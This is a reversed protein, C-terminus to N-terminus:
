KREPLPNPPGPRTALEAPVVLRLARPLVEIRARSTAPFEEGDIQAALPVADSRNHFAIEIRGAQLGESHRIGVQALADATRGTGDLHVLAKSIWDRKGLFPVVEFRGDDPRSDRDLVWLGGYIRTGKVVLDTLGTWRRPTPDADVSITADFKDDELYSALFTKLLAGAYVWQDRYVERLVPVRDIERRDENRLALIRPGIGWGASDFFHDERVTANREIARIRGADLDAERGEAIVGVNRDIESPDSSLGFSRGQDNATGTPLMALPVERARGSRILAKGVEAFTGDGGMAIVAGIGGERLRGSLERVTGGAPTTALLEHVIGRSALRARVHSIREANRGSQATPNAVLLHPRPM